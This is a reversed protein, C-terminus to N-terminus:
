GRPAGPVPFVRAGWPIVPGTGAVDTGTAGGLGPVWALSLGDRRTAAAARPESRCRRIPAAVGAPSDSRRAAWRGPAGRARRRAARARMSPLITGPAGPRASGGSAADAAGRWAPSVAHGISTIASFLAIRCM